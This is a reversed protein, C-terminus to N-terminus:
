LSIRRDCYNLQAGKALLPFVDRSVMFNTIIFTMKKFAKTCECCFLIELGHKKLFPFPFLTFSLSPLIPRM